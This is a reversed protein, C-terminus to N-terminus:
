PEAVINKVKMKPKLSSYPNQFVVQVNNRYNKKESESLEKIKKGKYFIEGSTVDEQRLILRTTTTKGSGSEGVLGLTKGKEVAFSINKLIKASTKKKLFGTNMYTKDVSVLEIINSM